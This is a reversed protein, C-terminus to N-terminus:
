PPWLTQDVWCKMGKAPKFDHLVTTYEGTLTAEGDWFTSGHMADRPSQWEIGLTCCGCHDALRKSVLMNFSASKKTFAGVARQAVGPLM